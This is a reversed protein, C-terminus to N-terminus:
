SSPCQEKERIELGDFGSAFTVPLEYKESTQNFKHAVARGLDIGLSMCALDACIIVDALEDAAEQLSATSGKMGLRARDLKKLINCAEGTEGALENGRFSLSLEETQGWYKNRRENADRLLKFNMM